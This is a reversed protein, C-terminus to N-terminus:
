AEPECPGNPGLLPELPCGACKPKPSCYDDGVQILWEALRGLEYSSDNSGSEFFTPAESPEDHWSIWNHRCAVRWNARTLPFKQLGGIVCFIRTIWIPDHASLDEWQAELSSRSSDWPSVGSDLQGQWWCALRHLLAVNTASVGHPNLLEFLASRNAQSVEPVSLLWSPELEPWAATFKKRSLMRELVFRALGAWGSRYALLDVQSYHGQLLKAAVLLRENPM